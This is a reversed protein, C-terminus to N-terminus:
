QTRWAVTEAGPLWEIWAKPMGDTIELFGITGKRTAMNHPYTPSGPNILLVGEMEQIEEVHTDGCVIIDVPGGFNREMFSALTWHPSPDPIVHRLGVRLGGLTLVHVPKLRPDEPTVRRGGSGSDGNGRAAYIPAQCRQELWDLVKLSYIDGAHLIADVGRFAAYVEPWLDDRADPIHSDSILGILM